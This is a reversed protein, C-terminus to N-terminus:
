LDPNPECQLPGTPTAKVYGRRNIMLVQDYSLISYDTTPEKGYSKACDQVQPPGAFLGRPIEGTSIMQFWCGDPDSFLSCPANVGRNYRLQLMGNTLKVSDISNFGDSFLARGNGIHFITFNGAGQRDTWEFILYPGKRGVLASHDSLLTIGHSSVNRGCRTSPPLITADGPAPTDTGPMLIMIDNYFVCTVADGSPPSTSSPITVMKRPPDFDGPVQAVAPLAILMIALAIVVLRDFKSAQRMVLM